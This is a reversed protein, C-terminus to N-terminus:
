YYVHNLATRLLRADKIAKNALAIPHTGSAVDHWSYVEGQDEEWYLHRNIREIDKRPLKVSLGFGLQGEWPALYVSVYSVAGYRFKRTYAYASNDIPSFRGSTLGTRIRFMKKFVPEIKGVVEEIVAVCKRAFNFSHGALRLDNRTFPDLSKIDNEEM